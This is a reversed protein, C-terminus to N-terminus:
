AGSGPEAARRFFAVASEGAERVFPAEFGPLAEPMAGAREELVVVADGTLWGNALASALAAEGLGHGYPPDAFVLDFPPVPCAGLKTADRRWIRSLGTAGVLEANRRIVARAEAGTEVFLAFAAGRSLAEVGLAGSGAFLDLVRAGEVVGDFRHALINFITERLRDTTPRTASGKPAVLAAGRHAGGIVRM